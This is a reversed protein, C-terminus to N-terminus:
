WDLSQAFAMVGAPDYTRVARRLRALTWDDYASAFEDAHFTFNPLRHEGVWPALATLVSDAHEAAGPVGAIGVILVSYAADRSCFASDHEGARATAGGMQRVEVLIQPSTSGTGALSLLVEAAEAPFDTLVTSAERAPRSVEARTTAATVAKRTPAM